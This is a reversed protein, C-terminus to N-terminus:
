QLPYLIAFQIRQPEPDGQRTVNYYIIGEKSDERTGLALQARWAVQGSVEEHEWRPGSWRGTPANADRQNIDPGRRLSGYPTEAVDGGASISVGHLPFNTPTAEFTLTGDESKRLLLEVPAVPRLTMGGKSLSLFREYEQETLGFKEHYPLEDTGAAEVYSRFWDANAAIATQMRKALGELEPPPAPVMVNGRIVGSKPLHQDFAQASVGLPLVLLWAVALIAKM